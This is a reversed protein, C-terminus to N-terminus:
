LARAELACDHAQRRDHWIVPRKCAPCLTSPDYTPEVVPSTIGRGLNFRVGDKALREKTARAM